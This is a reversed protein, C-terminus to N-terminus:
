EGSKTQEGEETKKKLIEELLEKPLMELLSQLGEAVQQKQSEEAFDIKGTELVNKLIPFYEDMLKVMGMICRVLQKRTLPADELPFEIIPRVEGDIHDYEFQILKTQWQIMACAQLFIPAKEPSIKFAVPSYIKIYEGAEDLDIIIGINNNGKTDVYNDTHFILVIDNNEERIKFRMESEYLFRAIEKLNTAM